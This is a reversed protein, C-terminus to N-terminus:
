RSSSDASCGAIQARGQSREAHSPQRRSVCEFPMRTRAAPIVTVVTDAMPDALPSGQPFASSTGVRPSSFNIHVLDTSTRIPTTLEVYVLLRIFYVWDESPWLPRHSSFLRMLACVSLSILSPHQTPSTHVQRKADASLPRIVPIVPRLKLQVFAQLLCPLCPLTFSPLLPPRHLLWASPKHPPLTEGLRPAIGSPSTWWTSVNHFVSRARHAHEKDSVSFIFWSSPNYSLSDTDEVLYICASWM